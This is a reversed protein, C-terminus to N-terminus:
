SDTSASSEGVSTKRHESFADLLAWFRTSTFVVDSAEMKAWQEPGLLRKMVSEADNRSLAGAARLDTDQEITYTDGGFTFTFPELKAESAVADLDFPKPKSAM